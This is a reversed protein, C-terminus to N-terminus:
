HYSFTSKPHLFEHFPCKKLKTMNLNLASYSIGALLVIFTSYMSQIKNQREKKCVKVLVPVLNKKKRDKKTNSLFKCFSVIKEHFLPNMINM